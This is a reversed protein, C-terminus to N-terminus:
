TSFTSTAAKILEDAEEVYKVGLVFHDRFDQFYLKGKDQNGNKLNEICIKSCLTGTCYEDLAKEYKKKVDEFRPSINCSQSDKLGDRLMNLFLSCEVYAYDFNQNIIANGVKQSMDNSKESFTHLFKGTKELWEKDTSLEKMVVSYDQYPQLKSIEEIMKKLGSRDVLDIRNAHALQQASDTFYNNTIVIGRTCGHIAKSAVVEQVAKNSVKSSYCKCQVATRIGEKSTIILDAGQDGSLPTHHVTYGLRKYIDAMCREFKYGDMNDIMTLTYLTPVRKKAQEQKYKPKVIFSDYLLYLDLFLFIILGIPALGIPILIIILLFGVFLLLL